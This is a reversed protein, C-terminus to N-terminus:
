SFGRQRKIDEYASKIEQTKETAKALEAESLGKSALKDPHHQSMLRRYSKKIESEEASRSVGLVTYPDKRSFSSPRARQQGAGAHGYQQRFQENFQNFDFGNFDFPMVGLSRALRNLTATKQPHAPIGDARAIQQLVDYCMRLVVPQRGYKQRLQQILPEPSFGPEKGQNFLQIARSRLATSLNMSGMIRKAAAIEEETVRGDSKALYGMLPFISQFFSDSPGREPNFQQYAYRRMFDGFFGMDFLHGFFVGLILGITGGFMLGLIAGWFKGSWRM